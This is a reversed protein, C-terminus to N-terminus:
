KAQGVVRWGMRELDKVCNPCVKATHAGDNSAMSYVGVRNDMLKNCHMCRWEAVNEPPESTVPQEVHSAFLEVTTLQDPPTETEVEGLTGNEEYWITTLDDLRRMCTIADVPVYITGNYATPMEVFIM